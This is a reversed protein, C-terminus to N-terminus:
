QSLLPAALHRWWSSRLCALSHLHERHPHLDGRMSLTSIRGSRIVACWHKESRFLCLNQWGSWVFVWRDNLCASLAWHEDIFLYASIGVCHVDYRQSGELLDGWWRQHYGESTIKQLSGMIWTQSWRMKLGKRATYVNDTTYMHMQPSAASLSPFHGLFLGDVQLLRIDEPHDSLSSSLNFVNGLWREGSPSDM